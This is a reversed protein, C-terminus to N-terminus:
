VRDKFKQATDDSLPEVGTLEAIEQSSAFLGTKLSTWGFMLLVAAPLYRWWGVAALLLWLSAAVCIGGIILPVHRNAM